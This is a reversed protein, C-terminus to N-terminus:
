RELFMTLLRKNRFVSCRTQKDWAISALSSLSESLAPKPPEQQHQAPPFSEGRRTLM